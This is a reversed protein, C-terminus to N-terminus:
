KKHSKKLVEGLMPLTIYQHFIAMVKDPKTNQDLAHNAKKLGVHYKDTEIYHEELSNEDILDIYWKNNKRSFTYTENIHILKIDSPVRNNTLLNGFTIVDEIYVDFTSIKAGGYENPDEKYYSYKEWAAEGHTSIFRQRFDGVKILLACWDDLYGYSSSKKLNVYSNLSECRDNAFSADTSLAFLFLYYVIRKM